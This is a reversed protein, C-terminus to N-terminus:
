NLFFYQDKKAPFLKEINVKYKPKGLPYGLVFTYNQWQTLVFRTSIDRGVPCILSLGLLLIVVLM